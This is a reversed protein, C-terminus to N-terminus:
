YRLPVCRRVLKVLRFMAVHQKSGQSVVSHSIHTKGSWSLEVAVKRKNIWNSHHIHLLSLSRTNELVVRHMAQKEEHMFKNNQRNYENVSM